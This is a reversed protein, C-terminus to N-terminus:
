LTAATEPDLVQYSAHPSSGRGTKAWSEYGYHGSMCSGAHALTVIEQGWISEKLVPTDPPLGAIPAPKRLSHKM